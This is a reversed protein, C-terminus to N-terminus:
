QIQGTVKPILKYGSSWNFSEILPWIAENFSVGHNNQAVHNLLHNSPRTDDISQIPITFFNANLIMKKSVGASFEKVQKRIYRLFADSSWRGLLMITCVPIGALYMAMAASSRASHLGIQKETFGLNNPGLTATAIRLWKLLETGTFLHINGNPLLYTNVTTETTTNPYSILRKIINCWILVPCLLSDGSRRHTVTDNKVDKKQHHEFTISISDSLHLTSSSHAILRRGKFFRINKICLTKTKQHGSVKLYNCSHMAFFFAAIFLECLIKDIRSLALKHFEWLISGTVVAQQSPPKDNVHYGWLQRQPIFALWKDLNLRPDPRDALKYTQAVCELTARVTELKITQNNHANCLRGERIAHAFAGLIQHKQGISFSDLFWDNNIGISVLYSKYGNWACSKKVNTGQVVAGQVAFEAAHMDAM